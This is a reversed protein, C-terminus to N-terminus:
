TPPRAQLLGMGGTGRYVRCRRESSTETAFASGRLARSLLTVLLAELAGARILLFLATFSLVSTVAVVYALAWGFDRM